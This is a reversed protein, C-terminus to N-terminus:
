TLLYNLNINGITKTGTNTWDSGTATASKFCSIVGTAQLQIIGFAFAGNDAILAPTNGQVRAPTLSPPLGTITCTVANSTGSLTPLQISVQNRQKVYYATGTVTTSVGTLTATFSGAEVYPVRSPAPIARETGIVYGGISFNTSSIPAGNAAFLRIATNGSVNAPGSIRLRKWGTPMQITAPTQDYFTDTTGDNSLVTVFNLASKYDIVATFFEQGQTNFTIAFRSQDAAMTVQYRKGIGGPTTTDAVVTAATGVASSLSPPKGGSDVVDWLGGEAFNFITQSLYDGRNKVNNGVAAVAHNYRGVKPPSNADGQFGAVGIHFAGVIDSGSEYYASTIFNVLMQSDDQLFGWDTGGGNKTADINTFTNAHIGGGTPTAGGTLHVYRAIGGVFLNQNVDFFDASLILSRTYKIGVKNWFCGPNNGPTTSTGGDVTLFGTDNTGTDIGTYECFFCGRIYPRKAKWNHIGGENVLAHITYFDGTIQFGCFDASEPMATDSTIAYDAELTGQAGAEDCAAKWDAFNNYRGRVYPMYAYNSPTVNVNIEAQTRPWLIQGLFQQTLDAITIGASINDVSWIPNTPPDTDGRPSLVYKYTLEPDLWISAEGRFDLVIPNTNPTGNENQYTAIKNNTGAAYTFVLGGELPRGNNGFFQQKPSPSLNM